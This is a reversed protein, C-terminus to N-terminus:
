LRRRCRSKLYENIAREVEFVGLEHGEGLAAVRVHNKDERLCDPTLNGAIAGIAGVFCEAGEFDAFVFDL